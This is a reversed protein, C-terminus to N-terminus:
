EVLLAALPAVSFRGAVRRRSEVCFESCGNWGARHNALKEVVRTAGSDFSELVPCHIEFRSHTKQCLRGRGGENTKRCPSSLM